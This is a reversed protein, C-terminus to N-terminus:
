PLADLNGAVFHQLYYIDTADPTDGSEKDINPSCVILQQIQEASLNGAAYHQLYYIDTADVEGSGDVDGLICSTVTVSGATVNDEVDSAALMVPYTGDDAGILLDVPEGVADYGADTNNLITAEISINYTDDDGAVTLTFLTEGATVDKGEARAAAIKMSGATENAKLHTEPNTTLPSPYGEVAGEVFADFFTSSVSTITLGDGPVVTFAAGAVNGDGTAVIDVTGNGKDELELEVPSDAAFAVSATFAMMAVIAVVAIMKNTKMKFNRENM